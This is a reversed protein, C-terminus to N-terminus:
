VCRSTYLLCTMPDGCNCIVNEVTLDLHFASAIDSFYTFAALHNDINRDSLLGNWLHLVLTSSGLESAMRCNESFLDLATQRDNKEGSSLFEGIHKDCHMVPIFLQMRRLDEILVGATGYWSEYMMFEFGDCSLERACVELLKYNRGNPKGILAGTSCLITNM